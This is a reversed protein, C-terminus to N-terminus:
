SQMLAAIEERSLDEKAVREFKDNFRDVTVCSVMLMYELLDKGILSERYSSTLRFLLRGGVFDFDFSGDVIIFNAMSVAVAMDVRKQPPIEIPLPSHLMLLMRDGNVEFTIPIPIDDGRTVLSISYDDGKTYKWGRADLSELLAKYTTETLLKEEEQM